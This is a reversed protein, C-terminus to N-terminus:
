LKKIFCRRLKHHVREFYDWQMQVAMNTELEPNSEAYEVGCKKFAPILADFFLANVGRNQYEPLVAVLLLDVVKPNGKLASLLHMWGFPALKGNSKKLAKSLSPLAVSVGILRNDEEREVLVVFDPRLLPVYTKAYYAIQLPSLESYGYLNSYCSNITEFFEQIYPKIEKTSRPHIVRLGYKKKIIESIRKHKEPVEDPIFIKYEKWDIDKVFGIRELQKPYYAYNYLTIMTGLQDFGEVLMGEKDMDTFGLPGHLMEMGKSRAWEEVANFLADVVENDNIFDVFGFRANLNNWAENARHNIIGAIRGVIQKGRWALFYIAECFEFAPNIDPSLTDMDDKILSPVHYPNHRYLENGFELFKKLDEKSQVTRIEVAM